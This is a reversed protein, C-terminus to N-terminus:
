DLGLEDGYHDRYEDRKDRVEDVYDRTEPFEIGDEDLDAGGWAAVNTEGANYAALAAVENGDFKDLLHRLYFSGYAINVDPDALDEQRFATGRSLKAILKATAPTIQMLGRAGASSTQDRFKSEAYIVAAILDAPVDHDSAEQRIIDEHRLPLTVERITDELEDRNAIGYALAVGVVAALAAWVVRRRGRNKRRRASTAKRRAKSRKASARSASRARRTSAGPSM